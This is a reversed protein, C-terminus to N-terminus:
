LLLFISSVQDGVEKAPKVLWIFPRMPSHSLLFQTFLSHVPLEHQCHYCHGDLLAAPTSTNTTLSQSCVAKDESGVVTGACIPKWNHKTSHMFSHIFSNFSSRISPPPLVIERRLSTIIQNSAIDWFSARSSDSEKSWGATGLIM